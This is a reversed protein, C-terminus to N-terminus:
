LKTLEKTKDINPCQILLLTPLIVSATHLTQFQLLAEADTLVHLHFDM